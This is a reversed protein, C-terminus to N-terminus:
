ITTKAYSAYNSCTAEVKSPVKWNSPPKPVIEIKTLTTPASSRFSKIALATARKHNIKFHSWPIYIDNGSSYRAAQVEDWTEPFPAVSSDCEVNHQQLAVSFQNSGSYQIHLYSNLYASMDRCSEAVLTYYQYDSDTSVIRLSNQSYTLSM